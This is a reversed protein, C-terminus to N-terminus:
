GATMCYFSVRSAGYQRTTYQQPDTICLHDQEWFAPLQVDTHSDPGEIGVRTVQVGSPPIKFLSGAGQVTWEFTEVAMLHDSLHVTAGIVVNWYYDFGSLLTIGNASSWSALPQWCITLGTLQQSIHKSIAPLCSSRIDNYEIANIIVCRSSGASCLTVHICNYANSHEAKSGLTHIRLEKARVVQCANSLSIDQRVFSQQSCGDFSIRVLHKQGHNSELWVKATQLIEANNVSFGM